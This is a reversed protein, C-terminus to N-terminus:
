SLTPCWFSKHAIWRKQAILGGCKRCIVSSGDEFADKLIQQNGQDRLITDQRILERAMDFAEELEMGELSEVLLDDDVKRKADALIRMISEEGQTLRIAQLISAFAELSKGESIKNRTIDILMEVAEASLLGSTDSM